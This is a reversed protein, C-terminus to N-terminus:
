KQQLNNQLSQVVSFKIGMWVRGLMGTTRGTGGMSKSGLNPQKNQKSRAVRSPIELDFHIQRFIIAAIVTYATAIISSNM